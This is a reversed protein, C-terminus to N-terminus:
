QNYNHASSKCSMPQSNPLETTNPTTIGVIDVCWSAGRRLILGEALLECVSEEFGHDVGLTLRRTGTNGPEYVVDGLALLLQWGPCYFECIERGTAM